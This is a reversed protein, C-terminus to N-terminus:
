TLLEIKAGGDDITRNEVREHARAGNLTFGLPVVAEQPSIPRANRDFFQGSGDIHLWGNPHAAQQYSQIGGHERKWLLSDCQSAGLVRQAPEWRIADQTSPILSASIREVSRDYPNRVLDTVQTAYRRTLSLTSRDAAIRLVHDSILNAVGESYPVGQAFQREAFSIDQHVTEPRLMAAYLEVPIRQSEPSAKSQQAHERHITLMNDSRPGFDIAASKGVERALDRELRSGDDTYLRVDYAARSVAVYAFRQNILDRHASVEVNILVRDATLWQSSHSTVAYGHDFHRMQEPRFSVVRPEAGDLRVRLEHTTCSDVTGLQRNSVGLARNNTTFQLRDGEAFPRQVERYATIGSLRKPDYTVQQGDQREVTLRNAQEDVARVTAYGLPGIGLEKSGRTYQLVDGAQYQAAWKRDESNLEFRPVLM